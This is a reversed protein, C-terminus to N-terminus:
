STRVLERAPPPPTKGAPRTKGKEFDCLFAHGLCLFLGLRLWLWLGLRLSLGLGLCMGLRLGLGFGLCLGSLPGVLLGVLPVM